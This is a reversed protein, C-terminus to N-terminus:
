PSTTARRQAHPQEQTSRPAEDVILQYLAPSASDIAAIEESAKEDVVAFTYYALAMYGTLALLLGADGLWNVNGRRHRRALPSQRSSLTRTDHM